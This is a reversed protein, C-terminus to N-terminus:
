VLYLILTDFILYASVKTFSGKSKNVMQVVGIVQM